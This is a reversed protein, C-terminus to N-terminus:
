PAPNQIRCRNSLLQPRLGDPNTRDAMCHTAPCFWDQHASAAMAKSGICFGFDRETPALKSCWGQPPGMCTGTQFLWVKWHIVMRVTASTTYCRLTREM